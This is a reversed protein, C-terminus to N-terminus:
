CVCSFNVELCAVLCRRRMCDAQTKKTITFFPRWLHSDFWSRQLLARPKNTTIKYTLTEIKYMRFEIIECTGSVPGIAQDRGIVLGVALFQLRRPGLIQHKSIRPPRFTM